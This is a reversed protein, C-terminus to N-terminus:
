LCQIRVHLFIMLEQFLQGLRCTGKTCKTNEPIRVSQVIEVWIVGAEIFLPSLDFGLDGKVEVAMERTSARM